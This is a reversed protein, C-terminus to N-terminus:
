LELTQKRKEIAKYVRDVILYGIVAFLTGFIAGGLVDTPFHVYLYMRSFGVILSLVLAPIWLKNKNFLLAFTAEFCALTHGSPFSPDDLAKVILEAEKYEYPRIRGVVIKIVYNGVLLGLLLAAGMTIGTKRTKRFFVLVVALAIWIIGADVLSSLIPMAKDLFACSFHERIYDLIGIEYANLFNM